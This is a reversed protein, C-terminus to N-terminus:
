RLTLRERAALDIRLTTNASYVGVTTYKVRWQAGILAGISVNAALTGDTPTFEGNVVTLASLSYIFRASSTTFHFNAVDCWTAGDDFTTQVWADASTGGSGYTFNGQIVIAEPVGERTQLTQTVQATQATTLALNALMTM